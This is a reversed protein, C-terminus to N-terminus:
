VSPPQTAPPPGPSPGGPFKRIPRVTEALGLMAVIIPVVANLIVLAVYLLILVHTRWAQGRTTYHIIALGQLVYVLFLAGTLAGCVIRMTGDSLSMGVLAAALLAPLRVPLWLAALDPWPRALIGASRAIRGGLYLNLLHGGTWSIASVVPLFALAMAAIRAAEADDIPGRQGDPLQRQIFDGAAKKLADSLHDMDGGMVLMTTMALLAGILGAWMVVRGIPYWEVAAPGKLPGSDRYLGTLYTLAVAPLAECGLFGLAGAPHALLALAGAAAAAGTLSVRWGLALGAVYLPLPTIFFLVVRLALVGTGAAAFILASTLGAAIGILLAFPM